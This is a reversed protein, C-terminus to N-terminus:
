PEPLGSIWKLAEDLRQHMEARKDSFRHNAADILFMRKPEPAAAFLKKATDLPVFEDHTSQISVFPVRLKSMYPMDDAMPEDPSKKTIWITWDRWTRWGLETSAPLGRAIVGGFEPKGAGESAAIVALGAGESVGALVPPSSFGLSKEAERALVRFHGPVDAPNLRGPSSTFSALYARVNLGLVAVAQSELHDAVDVVLGEWGFDGSALIVAAKPNAPKYLYVTQPRGGLTVTVPQPGPIAFTFTAAGLALVGVL